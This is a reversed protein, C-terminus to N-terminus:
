CYNDANIKMDDEVRFPLIIKSGVTETKFM